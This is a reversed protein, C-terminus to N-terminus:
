FWNPLELVQSGGIKSAERSATIQDTLKIEGKAVKEIVVLAVMLKVVSAPSRKQHINDGEIIKGTIAEMVIYSKYPEEKTSSARSQSDKHDERVKKPPKADAVGICFLLVVFVILLRKM